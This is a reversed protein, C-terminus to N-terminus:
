LTTISVFSHTTSVTSKTFLTVLVPMFLPVLVNNEGGIISYLPDYM